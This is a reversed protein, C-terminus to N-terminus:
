KIKKNNMKEIKENLNKKKIQNTPKNKTPNPSPSTTTARDHPKMIPQQDTKNQKYDTKLNHPRTFLM